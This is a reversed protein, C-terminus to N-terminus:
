APSAEGKRSHRRNMAAKAALWLIVLATVGTSLPALWRDFPLAGANALLLRGAVIEVQGPFGAQAVVTGSADTCQSIGSSAVRLIPIGYEASRVPAVRAHLQHERAGWEIMDM